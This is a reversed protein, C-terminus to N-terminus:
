GGSGAGSKGGAAAPAPLIAEARFSMGHRDGVEWARATLGEFRVRMGEAIGKPEGSVSVEIVSARRGTAERVAVGVQYVTVGDRDVRIQGTEPNTRPEPAVVCTCAGLRAADVPISQM